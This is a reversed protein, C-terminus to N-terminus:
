GLGPDLDFDSLAPPSALVLHFMKITLLSVSLQTPGCVWVSQLISQDRL